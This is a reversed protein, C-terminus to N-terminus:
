KTNHFGSNSPFTGQPLRIDAEDSKNMAQDRYNGLILHTDASLIGKAM